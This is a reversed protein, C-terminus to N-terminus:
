GVPSSETEPPFEVAEYVASLALVIGIESLPVITGLGEYVEPVFGQEQRRYVLIRPSGPEVLLL